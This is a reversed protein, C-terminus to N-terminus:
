RYGSLLHEWDKPQWHFDPSQTAVKKLSRELRDLNAQMWPGAKRMECKDFDIVWVAESTDIMINRCNLDSHFVRHSHLKKIEAGIAVWLYPPLEKTQLIQALTQANPIRQTIIDARYTLGRPVYRAALPRPVALGKLRMLKLLEFEQFARSKKAGLRLFLDNNVRGMLGGRHFHRLVMDHDAYTLFHAQNRGQTSGQWCGNARLWNADFLSPEMKPFLSPDYCIVTGNLRIEATKTM